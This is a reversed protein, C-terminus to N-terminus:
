RMWPQPQFSSAARSKPFIVVNKGSLIQAAPMPLFDAGAKATHNEDFVWRGYVGTYDTAAIGASIADPERSGARNIASLAVNMIGHGFAHDASAVSKYMDAVRKSFEVVEPNTPDVMMPMWVLGDAAKGAQSIFESRLPYYVGFHLSKLGLEQYQRVFSVGSNVATFISIVVDPEDARLKTLQPYFDAHSLPVTEMASITWGEAKFTSSILSANSRGYDTDEVVLAIKKKSPKLSAEISKYIESFASAYVESNFNGKWFYKYKEPNAKIKNAVETSVPEGSLIPLNFQGAMEMVAMTVSSHFAEGILLDIKDVSIMKQAASVGVEPRSQSDEFILTIPTKNAGIKVGGADNWDKAALEMGQRLGIGSNAAPGTLPAVIGIKISDEAAAPSLVTAAAIALGGLMLPRVYAFM